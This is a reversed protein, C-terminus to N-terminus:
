TKSPPRHNGVPNPGSPSKHTRKDEDWSIIVHGSHPMSSARITRLKVHVSPIAQVNATFHNLPSAALLFCLLLRIFVQTTMKPM